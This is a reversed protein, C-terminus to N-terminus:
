EEKKWDISHKNLITQLKECRKELFLLRTAQKQNILTLCEISNEELAMVMEM